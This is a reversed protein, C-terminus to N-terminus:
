HLLVSQPIKTNKQGFLRNSLIGEVRVYEDVIQKNTAFKQNTVV